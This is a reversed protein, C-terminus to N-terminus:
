GVWRLFFDSVASQHSVAVQGNPVGHTATPHTSVLYFRDSVLPLSLLAQLDPRFSHCHAATTASRAPNLWLRPAFYFHLFARCSPTTMPNDVAAIVALLECFLLSISTYIKSLSPHLNILYDFRGDSWLSLWGGSWFWGSGKLDM